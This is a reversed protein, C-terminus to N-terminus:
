QAGRLLLALRERQATKLPPYEEAVALRIAIELRLAKMESRIEDTHEGEGVQAAVGALAGRKKRWKAWLETLEADPSRRVDAASCM